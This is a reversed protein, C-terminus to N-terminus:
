RPDPPCHTATLMVFGPQTKPHMHTGAILDALRLFSKGVSPHLAGTQVEYLIPRNKTSILILIPVFRCHHSPSTKACKM